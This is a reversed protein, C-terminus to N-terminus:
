LGLKKINAKIQIQSVFSKQHPFYLFLSGSGANQQCGMITTM